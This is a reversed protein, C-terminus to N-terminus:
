ALEEKGKQKDLYCEFYEKKSKQKDLFTVFFSM